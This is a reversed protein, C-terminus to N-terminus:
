RPAPVAAASNPSPSNHARCGVTFRRAEAEGSDEGCRGGAARLGPRRDAACRSHRHRDPEFCGGAGGDKRGYGCLQRRRRASPTRCSCTATRTTRCCNMSPTGAEWTTGASRPVRSAPWAKRREGNRRLRHFHERVAPVGGAAQGSGPMRSLRCRRWSARRARCIGACNTSCCARAGSSCARCELLVTRFGRVAARHPRGAERPLPPDRRAEIGARHRASVRYLRVRNGALAASDRAGGNARAGRRSVGRAGIAPLPRGQRHHPGRSFGGDGCGSRHIAPHARGPRHGAGHQTARAGGSDARAPVEPLQRVIEDRLYDNTLVWLREPPIVPRLRDVTNQILSRSGVVNLVQKASRRRSRPWFRTGRGGALILGYHHPNPM